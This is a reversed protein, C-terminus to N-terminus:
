THTLKNVNPDLCLTRVNKRVKKATYNVHEHKIASPRSKRVGSCKKTMILETWDATKVKETGNSPLTRFDQSKKKTWDVGGYIM